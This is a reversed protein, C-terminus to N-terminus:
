LPHRRAEPAPRRPHDTGHGVVEGGFTPERPPIEQPPRADGARGGDDREPQAGALGDGGRRRQRGVGRHAAQPEDAAGVGHHALTTPAPELRGARRHPRVAHHPEAGGDAVRERLGVARDLGGREVTAVPRDDAADVQRLRVLVVVRRGRDQREAVFGLDRPRRVLLDVVEVDAIGTEAAGEGRLADAPRARDLRRAPAHGVCRRVHHVPLAPQEVPALLERPVQQDGDVVADGPGGLAEHDGGARRAVARVQVSGAVALPEVDHDGVAVGRLESPGARVGAGDLGVQGDAAGVPDQDALDAARGGRGLPEGPQRRADGPGLLGGVGIQPQAVQAHDVVAGGPDQDSPVRPRGVGLLHALVPVPVEPDALTSGAPRDFRQAPRTALQAVGLGVVRAEGGLVRRVGRPDHHGGVHVRDRSLGEHRRGVTQDVELQELAPPDALALPAERGDRLVAGLVVHPRRDGGPAGVLGQRPHAPLVPRPDREVRPDDHAARDRGRRRAVATVGGVDVVVSGDVVVVM